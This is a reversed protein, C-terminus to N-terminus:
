RYAFLIIELVDTQSYVHDPSFAGKECLGPFATSCYPFSPDDVLHWHFVNLKTWSAARILQKLVDMSLYHRSTDLM